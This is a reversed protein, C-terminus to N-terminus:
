MHLTYFPAAVNIDRVKPIAWDVVIVFNGTQQKEHFYEFAKQDCADPFLDYAEEEAIALLTGYSKLVRFERVFKEESRIRELTAGNIVDWKGWRSHFLKLQHKALQGHKLRDQLYKSSGGFQGLFVGGQHVNIVVRQYIDANSVKMEPHEVLMELMQDEIREIIPDFCKELEARNRNM